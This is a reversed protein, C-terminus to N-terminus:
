LRTSVRDLDDSLINADIMDHGMAQVSLTDAGAGLDVTLSSREPAERAKQVAPLLLGILISDDGEGAVVNLAVDHANLAQLNMRDDGVGLDVHLRSGPERAKQVAPLLLGILADDDGDGTTLDLEVQSAGQARFSVLDDGGGMDIRARAAAARVKQVAPLLLGILAQDDGDGASLDLEVQNVGSADIRAADDGGGLDVTVRAVADRVKQVAPLLLGIQVQDDGDGSSVRVDPVAIGDSPLRKYQIADDGALGNIVVKEVGRFEHRSGTASDAVSVSGRGNDVVVIEDADRSGDVTLLGEDLVATVSFCTRSELNEFRSRRGFSRHSHRSM